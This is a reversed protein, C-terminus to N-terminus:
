SNTFFWHLIRPKVTASAAFSVAHRQRMLHYTSSQPQRLWLSRLQAALMARAVRNSPWADRTHLTSHVGNERWVDTAM